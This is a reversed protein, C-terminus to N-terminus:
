KGCRGECAHPDIPKNSKSAVCGYGIEPSRVNRQCVSPQGPAGRTVVLTQGGTTSPVAELIAPSGKQPGSLITVAMGEKLSSKAEKILVCGEDCSCPRWVM